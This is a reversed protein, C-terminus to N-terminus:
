SRVRIHRLLPHPGGFFVGAKDKVPTLGLHFGAGFQPDNWRRPTITLVM